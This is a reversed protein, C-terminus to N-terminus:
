SWEITGVVASIKGSFKDGDMSHKLSATMGQASAEVSLEKFKGDKNEVYGLIKGM